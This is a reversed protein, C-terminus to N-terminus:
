QLSDVPRETAPEHVELVAVPREPREVRPDPHSQGADQALTGPSAALATTRIEVTTAPRRQPAPARRRALHGHRQGDDARRHSGRSSLRIRSVRRDPESPPARSSLRTDRGRHPRARLASGVFATLGVLAALGVFEALGVFATLPRVADTVLCRIPDPWDVYERERARLARYRAFADRASELGVLSRWTTGRFTHALMRRGHRMVFWPDHALAAPMHRVKMWREAKWRM